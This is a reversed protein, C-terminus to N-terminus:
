LWRRRTQASHQTVWLKLIALINSFGARKRMLFSMVDHKAFARALADKTPLCGVLKPVFVLIEGSTSEGDWRAVKHLNRRANWLPLNRLDILAQLPEPLLVHVSSHRRHEICAELNRHLVEVLVVSQRLDLSM